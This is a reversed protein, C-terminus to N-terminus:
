LPPSHCTPSWSSFMLGTSIWLRTRHQPKGLWNSPRHTRTDVNWARRLFYLASQQLFTLLKPPPFSTEKSQAEWNETGHGRVKALKELLEVLVLVSLPAGNILVCEKMKVLTPSVLHRDPKRFLLYLLAVVWITHFDAAAVWGPLLCRHWKKEATIVEIAREVIISNFLVM